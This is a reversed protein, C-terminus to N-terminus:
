LFPAQPRSSKTQNQQPLANCCNQGQNEKAASHNSALPATRNKVFWNTIPPLTVNKGDWRQISTTQLTLM